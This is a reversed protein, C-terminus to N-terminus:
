FVEDAILPVDALPDGACSFDNTTSIENLTLTVTGQNGNNDLLPVTEARRILTEGDFQYAEAVYATARNLATDPQTQLAPVSFASTTNGDELGVTAAAGLQNCVTILVRGNAAANTVTISVPQVSGAVFTLDLESFYVQGLSDRQQVEIRGIYPLLPSIYVGFRNSPPRNATSSQPSPIDTQNPVYALTSLTQWGDPPEYPILPDSAIPAEPVNRSPPDAIGDGNRDLNNGLLAIARDVSIRNGLDDTLSGQNSGWEGNNVFTSLPDTIIREDREQIVDFEIYTSTTGTIIAEPDAVGNVSFNSPIMLALDIPGLQTGSGSGGGCSTLLAAITITLLKLSHDTRQGYM